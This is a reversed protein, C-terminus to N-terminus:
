EDGVLEGLSPHFLLSLPLTKSPPDNLIPLPGPNQSFGHYGHILPDNLIM